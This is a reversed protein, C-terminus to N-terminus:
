RTILELVEVHDGGPQGDQDGDIPRGFVDKVGHGAAAGSIVIAVERRAPIARNPVLRVMNGTRIYRAIRIRIRRDDGNGFQRDPGPLVLWYAAPDQVSTRKLSGSFKIIIREVSGRRAMVRVNLITVPPPAVIPQAHYDIRAVVGTSAGDGRALYYLSGSRDVLEGVPASPLNSAFDSASGTVPDFRHIWNGGLDSFFYSGGYQSPFEAATLEPNYFAGGTIAIGIDHGYYYIPSRYSSNQTPGETNPWGYNAGAIGDDIEEWTVAGVDDIFMRGTGPQFAFTFPNRLGIAWIAQNVGTTRSIFPNDTPISGDSNIRLIKGLLNDLSQANAGNGNEGVGIYLKGDPGFHIAGGNHNVATSLNSLRFLVVESGPIAVNGNATLRSVQNHAPSGPVTYYVYVYNNSQFDPDFAVGLLGREGTSDVNLSIFPATLLQNGEIVRLRGGQECVFIRGDPAQAMATPSSLGSSVITEAFGTPLTTPLWRQELCEIAPRSRADRRGHKARRVPRLDNHDSSTSM